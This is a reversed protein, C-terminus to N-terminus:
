RAGAGGVAADWIQRHKTADGLYAEDFDLRIEKIRISVRENPKDPPRFVVLGALRLYPISPPLLSEKRLERARVEEIYFPNSEDREFWDKGHQRGFLYLTEQGQENALVIGLDSGGTDASLVIAIRKWAGTNKVVGYEDYMNGQGNKEELKDQFAPIEFPPSIVAAATGSPAHSFDIVAEMVPVGKPDVAAGSRLFGEREVRTERVYSSADAATNSPQFVIRWDKLALSIFRAKGPIDPGIQKVSTKSILTRGNLEKGDLVVDTTLASFDILVQELAFAGPLLACFLVLPVILRKV